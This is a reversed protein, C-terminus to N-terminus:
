ANSWLNNYETDTLVPTTSGGGGTASITVTQNAGSGATAVTIGTGALVNTVALKSENLVKGQAASLAYNITSSDLANYTGRPRLQETGPMSGYSIRYKTEYWTTNTGVNYNTIDKGSCWTVVFDWGKTTSYDNSPNRTAKVIANQKVPLAMTGNSYVTWNTTGDNYMYFIFPDTQTDLDIGLKTAIQPITTYTGAAAGMFDTKKITPITTGSSVTKWTGDSKLFKDVDTTAPAPVLGSTGADVGDTGTFNSYTTDTASITTGSININTGATLKPQIESTYYYFSNDTTASATYEYRLDRDLFVFEFDNNHPMIFSNQLYSDNYATPNVTSTGRLIVQGENNADIIDQVSATTAFSIDKYIHRTTGTENLDAYFITQSSVDGWTGDGKLAKDEDGAVPAPVLGATGDTSATAGTFHTYTTDTASIENTDADITINSGAVLKDQFKLDAASKTYYPGEEGILSFSSTAAIWRYYTTEDDHTEDQLVKIIDNDKLKSTDYAELDAYTGVIDTVDSAAALADIQSQLGADDERRTRAEDNINQQLGGDAAERLQAEAAVAADVDPINTDGTMFVGAYKPRNVLQNFDVADINESILTYIGDSSYMYVHGNAEYEVLVNKYKGNRPPNETDDGLSAPETIKHFLVPCDYNNIEVVEPTMGKPCQPKKSCNCDNM